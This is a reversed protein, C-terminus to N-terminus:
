RLPRGGRRTLRRRRARKLPQWVVLLAMLLLSLLIATAAGVAGVAGPVIGPGGHALAPRALFSALPLFLLHRRILHM